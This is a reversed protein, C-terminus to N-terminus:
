DVSPAIMVSLTICVNAVASHYEMLMMILVLVKLHLTVLAVLIVFKVSIAMGDTQATVNVIKLVWHKM